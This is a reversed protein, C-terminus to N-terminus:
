STMRIATCIDRSRVMVRRASNNTIIASQGAGRCDPCPARPILMGWGLRVLLSDAESLMAVSGLNQM